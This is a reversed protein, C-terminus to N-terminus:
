ILFDNQLNLLYISMRQLGMSLLDWIVRVQLPPLSVFLQPTPGPFGPSGPAGQLTAPKPGWWPQGGRHWLPVYM